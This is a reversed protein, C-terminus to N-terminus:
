KWAFGAEMEGAVPSVKPAEPGSAMGAPAPPALDERATEAAGALHGTEANMKASHGAGVYVGGGDNGSVHVRGEDVRLRLGDFDFDTGRVSATAMPSRVVFSTNGGPPPKVNARIRGARLRIDIKETGRAQVLEELSLRTLPQVMLTSAGITILASSRFGTSIMTGAALVQGRRGPSWGAAGPAKVEVTGSLERIFAEQASLGAAGWLLLLGLMMKKM